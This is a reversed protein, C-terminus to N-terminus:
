SASASWAGANAMQEFVATYPVVTAIDHPAAYSKYVGDTMTFLDKGAGTAAQVTVTVTADIATTLLIDTGVVGDKPKFGNVTITCSPTGKGGLPDALFTWSSDASDTVDMQESVPRGTEAIVLERWRAIADAGINAVTGGSKGTYPTHAM